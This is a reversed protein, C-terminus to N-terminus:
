SFWKRIQGIWVVECLKRKAVWWFTGIVDIWVSTMSLEHFFNMDIKQQNAGFFRYLTETEDEFVVGKMNAKYLRSYVRTDTSYYLVHARIWEGVCFFADKQILSTKFQEDLVFLFRSGILVHQTSYSWQMGLTSLASRCAFRSQDPIPGCLCSM